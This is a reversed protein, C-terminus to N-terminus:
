QSIGAMIEDWKAKADGVADRALVAKQYRIDIWIFPESMEDPLEEFKAQKLIRDREAQEPGDSLHYMQQNAISGLTLTTTRSKQLSEYAKLAEPLSPHLQLRSKASQYQGLLNAIIAGDEVAMAAGQAQYPLSPHCADGLLAVNNQAVILVQNTWFNPHHIVSM